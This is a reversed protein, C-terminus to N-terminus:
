FGNIHKHRKKFLNLNKIQNESHKESRERKLLDMESILHEFVPWKELYSIPQNEPVLNWCVEFCQIINNDRTEKYHILSQITEEDEILTKFIELINNWDYDLWQWWEETTKPYSNLDIEFKEM